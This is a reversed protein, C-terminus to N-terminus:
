RSQSQAEIGFRLLEGADGYLSVGALACITWYRSQPERVIQGQCARIIVPTGPRFRKKSFRRALAMPQDFSDEFSRTLGPVLM